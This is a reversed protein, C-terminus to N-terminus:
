IIFDIEFDIDNDNDATPEEEAHTRTCKEAINNYRTKNTPVSPAEDITIDWLQAAEGAMLLTEDQMLKLFDTGPNKAKGKYIAVIREDYRKLEAAEKEMCAADAYVYSHACHIFIEANKAIHIEDAALALWSACSAATGDIYAVIKGTHREMAALMALAVVCEGGYSNIHLEIEEAPDEDFFKAFEEADAVKDGDFYPTAIDNYVYYKKM